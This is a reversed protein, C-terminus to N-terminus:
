KKRTVKTSFLHFNTRPEALHIGYRLFEGGWGLYYRCVDKGDLYKLYSDDFKERAHFIRNKKVELTQNPKGKSVQYAKLGVKVDAMSSLPVACSEIKEILGM